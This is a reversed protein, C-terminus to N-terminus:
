KDGQPPQRRPAPTTGGEWLVWALFILAPKTSNERARSAVKTHKSQHQGTYNSESSCLPAPKIGAGNKASKKRVSGSASRRHRGNKLPGALRAIWAWPRVSVPLPRRPKPVWDRQSPLKAAERQMRKPNAAAPRPATEPLVPWPLRSWERQLWQYLQADTPEAGFVVRAAQYRGAGANPLAVWFPPQFLVTLQSINREM